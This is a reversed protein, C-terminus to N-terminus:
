KWYEGYNIGEIRSQRRFRLHEAETLRRFVGPSCEVVLHFSTRSGVFYVGEGDLFGVCREKARDHLSDSQAMQQQMVQSETSVRVHISGVQHAGIPKNASGEHTSVLLNAARPEAFRM